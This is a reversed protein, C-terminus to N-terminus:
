LNYFLHILLVFEFLENRDSAGAVEVFLLGDYFFYESEDVNGHGSVLGNFQFHFTLVEEVFVDAFDVLGVHFDIVVELGDIFATLFGVRINHHGILFFLHYSSFPNTNLIKIFYPIIM